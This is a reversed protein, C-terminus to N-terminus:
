CAAIESYPSGGAGPAPTRRRSSLRGQQRPEQKRARPLRGRVRKKYGARFIAQSVLVAILAIIAGILVLHM